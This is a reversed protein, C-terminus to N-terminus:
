RFVYKVGGVTAFGGSYRLELPEANAPVVFVAYLMTADGSSLLVPPVASGVTVIEASVTRTRTESDERYEYKLSAPAVPVSTRIRTFNLVSWEFVVVREGRDPTLIGVFSHGPDRVR